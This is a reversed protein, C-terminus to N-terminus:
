LTNKKTLKSVSGFNVVIGQIYKIYSAKDTKISQPGLQSQPELWVHVDCHISGLDAGSAGM